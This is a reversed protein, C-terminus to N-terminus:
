RGWRGRSSPAHGPAPPRGGGSRRLRRAREVREWREDGTMFHTGQTNWNNGGVSSARTAVQWPAPESLESKHSPDAHQLLTAIVEIATNFRALSDGSPEPVVLFTETRGKGESHAGKSDSTTAMEVKAFGLVSLLDMAGLSNCIDREIKPNSLRLKRYKENGPHKPINSIVKNLTSLTALARTRSLSIENDLSSAAVCMSDFKTEDTLIVEVIHGSWGEGQVLISHPSGSPLRKTPRYAGLVSESVSQFFESSSPMLTTLVFMHGVKTFHMWTSSPEITWIDTPPSNWNADIWRVRVPLNSTNDIEIVVEDTTVHNGRIDEYATPSYTQSRIEVAPATGLDVRGVLDDSVSHHRVSSIVLEPHILHGFVGDTEDYLQVPAATHFLSELNM